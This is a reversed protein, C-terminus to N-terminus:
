YPIKYLGQYRSGGISGEISRSKKSVRASNVGGYPTCYSDMGIYM